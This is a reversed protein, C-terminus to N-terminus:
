YCLEKRKVKDQNHCFISFHGHFSAPQGSQGHGPQLDRRRGRPILSSSDSSLWKISINPHQMKQPCAKVMKAFLQLTTLIEDAARCMGSVSVCRQMNKWRTDMLNLTPATLVLAASSGQTERSQERRRPVEILSRM